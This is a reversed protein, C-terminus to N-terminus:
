FADIVSYESLISRTMDIFTRNKRKFLGNSQSTYKASLEHNIRMDDCVGDM